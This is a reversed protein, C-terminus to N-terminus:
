QTCDLAAIQDSLQNALDDFARACHEALIKRTDEDKTAAIDVMARAATLGLLSVRMKLREKPALPIM